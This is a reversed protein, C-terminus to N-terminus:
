QVQEAFTRINSMESVSRKASLGSIRGNSINIESSSGTKESTKTSRSRNQVDTDDFCVRSGLLSAGGDGRNRGKAGGFMMKVSHENDASSAGSDSMM